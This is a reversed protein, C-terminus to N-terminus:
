FGEYVTESVESKAPGYILRVESGVGAACLLGIMVYFTVAIRDTVGEDFANVVFNLQLGLVINLWALLIAVYGAGKHVVEWLARAQTRKFGSSAASPRIFANFPQLLGLVVAALGIRAHDSNFNEKGSAQYAKLILVFAVIVAVLGVFQTVRHAQFWTAGAGPRFRAILVGVPLLAAWGVVMLVAHLM